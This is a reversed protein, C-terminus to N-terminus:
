RFLASRMRGPCLCGALLGQQGAVATMQILIVQDRRHLLAHQRLHLATHRYCPCARGLQLGRGLPRAFLPLACRLGGAPAATPTRSCCCPVAATSIHRFLLGPLRGRCVQLQLVDQRLRDQCLRYAPEASDTALMCAPQSIFEKSAQSGAFRDNATVPPSAPASASVASILCHCPAPMPRSHSPSFPCASSACPCPSPSSIECPCPMLIHANTRRTAISLPRMCARSICCQLSMQHGYLGSSRLSGAHLCAARDVNKLGSLASCVYVVVVGRRKSSSLRLFSVFDSRM